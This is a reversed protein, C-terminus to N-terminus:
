RRTRLRRSRQRLGRETIDGPWPNGMMDAEGTRLYREIEDAFNFVVGAEDIPKAKKRTVRRRTM